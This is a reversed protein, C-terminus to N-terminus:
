VRFVIVSWDRVREDCSALALMDTMLPKELCTGTYTKM